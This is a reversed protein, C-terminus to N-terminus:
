RSETQSKNILFLDALAIATVAEIVPPVRLAICTDHRGKINLKDMKQSAFNYTQQEISISSTPKVVVRFILENGNTIGGNIGGSNNTSTKGQNDIIMDNVESGRKKASEFGLGFEIGKIAPISFVLHAISSEVSDFFPEGLGVPLGQTTCEIIGGISDGSNIINEIALDINKNGGLELIKALPQMPSIIKKALSGAAVLGLTLRGSFHGGGRYDQFGNYKNQAVFDAHGPRPIDKFISYDKPKISENEFLISIPSGSTKGNYIGSLIRPYDTEKRPTTGKKGSKRRRLDILMDNESFPIGAPCGDILIGIAKGHSEGFISIKFISGFSNM